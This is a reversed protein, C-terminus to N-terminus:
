HTLQNTRYTGAAQSGSRLSPFLKGANLFLTQLFYTSIRSMFYHFHCFITFHKDLFKYNQNERFTRLSDTQITELRSTQITVQSHSQYDLNRNAAPDSIKREEM